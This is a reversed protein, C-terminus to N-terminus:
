NLGSALPHEILGAGETLWFWYLNYTTFVVTVMRNELEFYVFIPKRDSARPGYQPLKCRM